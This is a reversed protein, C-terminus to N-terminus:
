KSLINTNIYCTYYEHMGMGGEGVVTCGQIGIVYGGKWIGEGLYTKDNTSAYVVGKSLGNRICMRLEKLTHMSLPTWAGLIFLYQIM